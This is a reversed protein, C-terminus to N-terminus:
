KQKESQDSWRGKENIKKNSYFEKSYTEHGSKRDNSPLTPIYTANFKQLQENQNLNLDYEIFDKELRNSSSESDKDSFIPIIKSGMKKVREKMRYGISSEKEKEKERIQINKAYKTLETINVIEKEDRVYPYGENVKDKMM